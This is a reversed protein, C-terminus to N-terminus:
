THYNNQPTSSSAPFHVLELAASLSGLSFYETLGVNSEENEPSRSSSTM